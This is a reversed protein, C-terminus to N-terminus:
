PERPLWLLKRNREAREREPDAIARFARLREQYDTPLAHQDAGHVVFDHYWQYPRLSDDIFEERAVYMCTEVEGKATSAVVTAHEYGVGLSEYHDLIRHQDGSLEYIVGWVCDLPDGSPFANAKGSGDRSRKHFQLRHGYVMGTTVVNVRDVRDEMRATLMNSGYAFIRVWGSM